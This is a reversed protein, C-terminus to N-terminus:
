AVAENFSRDHQCCDIMLASTRYETANHWPRMSAGGEGLRDIDLRFNSTSGHWNFIAVAENFRFRSCAPMLSM